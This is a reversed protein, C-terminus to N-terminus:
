KTAEDSFTCGILDLIGLRKDDCEHTMTLTGSRIIATLKSRIDKHQFRVLAGCGKCKYRLYGAKIEDSM